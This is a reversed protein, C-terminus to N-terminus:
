PLEVTPGITLVLRLIPENAGGPGEFSAFAISLPEFVSLLALTSAPPNGNADEGRVLDRAFSTFPIEVEEGAGTGFADPGM